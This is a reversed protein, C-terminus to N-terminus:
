DDAWELWVQFVVIEGSANAAAGIESVIAHSDKARDPWPREEEEPDQGFLSFEMALYQFGDKLVFGEITHIIRDLPLCGESLLLLETGNLHSRPDSLGDALVKAVKDEAPRRTM